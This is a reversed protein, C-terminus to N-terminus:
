GPLAFANSQDMKIVKIKKLDGLVEVTDPYLQKIKVIFQYENKEPGRNARCVQFLENYKMQSALKLEYEFPIKKALYRSLPQTVFYLGALCGLVTLGSIVIIKKTDLIKQLSFKKLSEFHKRMEVDTMEIRANPELTTLLYKYDLHNPDLQITQIDWIDIQQQNQDRIILQNGDVTVQALISQATEGDYYKAKWSLSM